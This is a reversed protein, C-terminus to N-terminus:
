NRRWDLADSRLVLQVCFKVTSGPGDDIAVEFHVEVTGDIAGSTEWVGDRIGELVRQVYERM